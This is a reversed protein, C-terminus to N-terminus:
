RGAGVSPYQSTGGRPRCSPCSWPWKSQAKGKRAHHMWDLALAETFAGELSPATLLVSAACRDCTLAHGSKQSALM